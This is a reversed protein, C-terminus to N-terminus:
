YIVCGSVCMCVCMSSVMKGRYFLMQREPPADFHEVLKERLDEILSLKSLGDIRAHKKGDM